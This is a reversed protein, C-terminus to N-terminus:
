EQAASEAGAAEAAQELRLNLEELNEVAEELADRVRARRETEAGAASLGALAYAALAAAALLTLM